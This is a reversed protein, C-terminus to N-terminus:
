QREFVAVNHIKQGKPDTGTTTVTRSKGDESLM